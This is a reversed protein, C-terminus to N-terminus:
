VPMTCPPAMAAASSSDKPWAKTDSPHASLLWFSFSQITSCLMDVLNATNHVWHMVCFASLNKQMGVVLDILTWFSL